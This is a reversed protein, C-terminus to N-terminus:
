RIWNKKRFLYTSVAHTNKPAVFTVSFSRQQQTVTAQCPWGTSYRKYFKLVKLICENMICLQIEQCNEPLHFHSLSGGM